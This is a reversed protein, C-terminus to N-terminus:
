QRRLLDKTWRSLFGSSGVLSIGQGRAHRGQRATGSRNPSAHAPSRGIGPVNGHPSIRDRSRVKWGAVARVRSCSAVPAEATIRRNEPSLRRWPGECATNFLLTDGSASLDVAVPCNLHSLNRDRAEVPFSGLIEASQILRGLLVRGDASIDYLVFNGPIAAVLRDHGGPTIARIHTQEEPQNTYWIEGTVPSWASQWAEIDRNIRRASPAAGKVLIEAWDKFAVAEGRPSVRVHNLLWTEGDYIVTGVPFEVRNRNGIRRLVAIDRGNPAWDAFLVDELLERAAGGALPGEALTGYLFSSGRAQIQKDLHGVGGSRLV